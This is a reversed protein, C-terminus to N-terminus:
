GREGKQFTYVRQKGQGFAPAQGPNDRIPAKRDRRWFIPRANDFPDAGM